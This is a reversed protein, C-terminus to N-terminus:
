WLLVSSCSRRSRALHAGGGILVQASADPNSAGTIPWGCLHLRQSPGVTADRAITASFEKGDGDAWVISHLDGARALAIWFRGSSGDQTQSLVTDSPGGAGVSGVHLGSVGPGSDATANIVPDGAWIGALAGTTTFWFTDITSLAARWYSSHSHPFTFPASWGAGPSSRITAEVPGLFGQSFDSWVLAARSGDSVFVPYIAVPMGGPSPGAIAKVPTTWTSGNWSSVVVAASDDQWAATISGNVSAVTAGVEAAITRRGSPQPPTVQAWHQSGGALGWMRATTDGNAGHLSVLFRDAADSAALVRYLGPQSSRTEYLVKSTSWGARGVIAAEVRRTTGSTMGWVVVARTADSAVVVLSPSAPFLLSSPIAWRSALVHAAGRFRGAADMQRAVLRRQSTYLLLFRGNALTAVDVVYPWRAFLQGVTEFRSGHATRRIVSVSHASSFVVVSTGSRNVAAVQEGGFKGGLRAAPQVHWGTGAADASPGLACVAALVALAVLGSPAKV